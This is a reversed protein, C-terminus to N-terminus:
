RERPAELSVGAVVFPPTLRPLQLCQKLRSCARSVDLQASAEPLHRVADNPFISEIYVGEAADAGDLDLGLAAGLEHVDLPRPTADSVDFERHLQQLQDMTTEVLVQPDGRRDSRDSRQATVPVDLIILGFPEGVRVSKQPVDLVPKLKALQFLGM